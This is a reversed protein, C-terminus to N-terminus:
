RRGRAPATGGGARCTPSASRAARRCTPAVATRRRAPRRCSRFLTTYPSLPARPPPFCFVAYSICRHSSNLRTSKRDRGDGRRTSSCSSRMTSSLKRTSRLPSGSGTRNRRGCSLHAVRKSSSTSVDPRRGNKQAGPSPLIPLADHLSLAPRPTPPLLLRCVLYMPSQLESTHEESRPRRGSTDVLLELADHVVAEEHEEVAVGLRHPEAERVVLPRRAELQEDVRRPSPREEARRAVALDSSRRTPLSRPAPHPSASSPM